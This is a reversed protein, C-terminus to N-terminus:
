EEEDNEDDSTDEVEGELAADPPGPNASGVGSTSPGTYDPDVDATEPGPSADHTHESM